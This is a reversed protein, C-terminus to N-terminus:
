AKPQTANLEEWTVWDGDINMGDKNEQAADIINASVEDIGRAKAVLDAPSLSLLEEKSTFNEYTNDYDDFVRIGYTTEAVSGDANLDQFCTRVIFAQNSM